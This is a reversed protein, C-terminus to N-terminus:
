AQTCNRAGSKMSAITVSTPRTIGAPTPVGNQGSLFRRASAFSWEVRRRHKTPLANPDFARSNNQHGVANIGEDEPRHADREAAPQEEFDRSAHSPSKQGGRETAGVSRDDLPPPRWRRNRRGIWNFSARCQDIVHTEATHKASQLPAPKRDSHGLCNNSFREGQHDRRRHPEGRQGYPNGRNRAPSGVERVELAGGIRRRLRHIKAQSTTSGATRPAGRHATFGCVSDFDQNPLADFPARGLHLDGVIHSDHHGDARGPARRSHISRVSGGGQSVRKRPRM